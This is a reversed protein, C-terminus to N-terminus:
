EVKMLCDVDFGGPKGKIEVMTCGCMQYPDSLVEFKKGKNKKAEFCNIMVVKDKPKLM